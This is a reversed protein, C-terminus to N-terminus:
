NKKQNSREFDFHRQDNITHINEARKFSFLRVDFQVKNYLGCPTSICWTCLITCRSFAYLKQDTILAEREKKEIKLITRTWSRSTQMWTRKLWIIGWYEQLQRTQNWYTKAPLQQKKERKNRRWNYQFCKKNTTAKMKESRNKRKHKIKTTKWRWCCDFKINEIYIWFM